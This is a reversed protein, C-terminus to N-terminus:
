PTVRAGPHAQEGLGLQHATGVMQLRAAPQGDVRLGQRLLQLRCRHATATANQGHRHQRPRMGTGSTADETGAVHAHGLAVQRALGPRLAGLLVAEIRVPLGPCAQIGEVRHAVGEVLDLQDHEAPGPRRIREGVPAPEHQATQLREAVEGLPRVGGPGSRRPPRREPLKRGGSRPGVVLGDGCMQAGHLAPELRAGLPRGPLGELSGRAAVLRRRDAAHAERELRSGVLDVLRLHRAQPAESGGLDLQADLAEAVGHQGAVLAAVVDGGRAAGHRQQAGGAELEVRM